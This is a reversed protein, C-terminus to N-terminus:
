LEKKRFYRARRSLFGYFAPIGFFFVEIPNFIFFGLELSRAKLEGLPPKLTKGQQPLRSSYHIPPIIFDWAGLL